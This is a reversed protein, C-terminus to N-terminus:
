LKAFLAHVFSMNKEELFLFYLGKGNQSSSLTIFSLLPARSNWHKQQYETSSHGANSEVKKKKELSSFLKSLTAKEENQWQM